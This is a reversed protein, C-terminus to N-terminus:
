LFYFSKLLVGRIIYFVAVSTFSFANRSHRVALQIFVYNLIIRIIFLTVPLSSNNTAKEIGGEKARKIWSQYAGAFIHSKEGVHSYVCKKGDLRLMDGAM